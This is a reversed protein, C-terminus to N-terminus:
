LSPSSTRQMLESRNQIRRHASSNVTDLIAELEVRDKQIGRPADGESSRFITVLGHPLEGRKLLRSSVLQIIAYLPAPYVEYFEARVPCRNLCAPIFTAHVIHDHQLRLHSATRISPVRSM